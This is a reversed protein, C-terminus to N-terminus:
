RLRGHPQRVSAPTLHMGPFGVPIIYWAGDIKSIRISSNKVKTQIMVDNM